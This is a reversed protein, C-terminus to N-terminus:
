RVTPISAVDFDGSFQQLRAVQLETLPTDRLIMEATLLPAASRLGFVLLLAAGAVTAAVIGRRSARLVEALVQTDDDISKAPLLADTILDGATRAAQPIRERLGDPVRVDQM